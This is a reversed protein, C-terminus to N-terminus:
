KYSAFGKPSPARAAVELGQARARRALQIYNEGSGEECDPVGGPCTVAPM